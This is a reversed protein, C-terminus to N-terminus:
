KTLLHFKKTSSDRSIAGQKMLEEAACLTQTKTLGSAIILEKETLESGSNFASLVKNLHAPKPPLKNFPTLSM